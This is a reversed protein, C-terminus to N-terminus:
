LGLWSRITTGAVLVHVVMAAFVALMVFFHLKRMPKWKLDTWKAMVIGSIGLAGIGGLAIVGGVIEPTWLGRYKTSMLLVGHVCAVAVVILSLTFHTTVWPWPPWKLKPRLAAHRKLGMGLPYAMVGLAAAGLLQGVILWGSGRPTGAGSPSGAVRPPGGVEVGFSLQYPIDTPKGGGNHVHHATGNVTVVLTVNGTPAGPSLLVSASGDPPLTGISAQASGTVRAAVVAEAGVTGADLEHLWPDDVTVNVEVGSAVRSALASADMAVFGDAAHCRECTDASMSVAVGTTRATGSGPKISVVTGVFQLTKGALPPNGDFFYSSSTARTVVYTLNGNASAVFRTYSYGLNLDNALAITTNNFATVTSNWYKYFRVTANVVPEYRLTVYKTGVSVVTSNWVKTPAVQGVVPTGWKDDFNGVEMTYERARESVAKVTSTRNRSWNGYADKPEVTLNFAAGEGLGILGRDLGPVFSGDGVTGSRDGEPWFVTGNEDYGVVQLAVEDGPRVLLPEPGQPGAYFLGGLDAGALLAAPVFIALVSMSGVLLAKQRNERKKAKLKERALALAHKRSPPAKPAAGAPRAPPAAPANGPLPGDSDSLDDM